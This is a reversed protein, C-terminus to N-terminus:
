AHEHVLDPTGPTVRSGGLSRAIAFFPDICGREAAAASFLHNALLHVESCGVIFGDAGYKELLAQVLPAVTAPEVMRKLRYIVDHHIVDQDAADPFVVRAAADEWLPERELLQLSRTANTCLLLYRGTARHLQDVMVGPVSV